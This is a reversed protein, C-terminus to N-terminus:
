KPSTSHKYVYGYKASVEELEREANHYAKAKPDGEYTVLDAPSNKNDCDLSILKKLTISFDPPTESTDIKNVKDCRSRIADLSQQFSVNPNNKYMQRMSSDFGKNIQDYNDLVLKIKESPNSSCGFSILLLFYCVSTKIIPKKNKM